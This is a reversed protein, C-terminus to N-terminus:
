KTKDEDSDSKYSQLINFVPIKKLRLKVGREM